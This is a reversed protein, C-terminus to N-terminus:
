DFLDCQDGIGDGDSDSQYDQFIGTHVPSLTLDTIPTSTGSEMFRFYFGWGGGNDHIQVVVRNWGANLTTPYTYKDASAGQCVLTEGILTGNVWVRGGDDPGFKADVSRTTDSYVYMGAFVERPAALSALYPITTFNIVDTPSTYMNWQVPDENYDLTSISLSPQLDTEPDEFLGVVPNCTAVTMGTVQFPDSLNWTRFFGGDTPYFPCEGNNAVLSCNDQTDLLGDGDDDDDCNNALLDGDVDEDETLEPDVLSCSDSFIEWEITYAEVATGFLGEVCYTIETTDSAPLYRATSDIQPDLVACTDDVPLDSAIEEGDAYTRLMILHSCEEQEPNLRLDIYDNDQFEFTYCDADGEWLMGRISGSSPLLNAEMSNDNPELEFDGTEITCTDDCGDINWLNSDDCEEDSDLIGDGCKPLLCDTRCADATNANNEGDDCEENPSNVIGDGCEGFIEEEDTATDGATDETSGTDTQTETDEVTGNNTNKDSESDTCGVFLTILFFPISLLNSAM